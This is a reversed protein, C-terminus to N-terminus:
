IGHKEYMLGSFEIESCRGLGFRFWSLTEQVKSFVNDTLARM